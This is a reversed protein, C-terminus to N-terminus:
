ADGGEADVGVVEAGHLINRHLHHLQRGARNWVEVLRSVARPHVAYVGSQVQRLGEVAFTHEDAYEVPAEIVGVGHKVVRGHRGRPNPRNPVLVPLRTRVLRSRTRCSWPFAM